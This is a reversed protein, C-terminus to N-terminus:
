GGQEYTLFWEPRSMDPRVFTPGGDLHTFIRLAITSTEPLVRRLAQHAEYAEALSQCAFDLGQPWAKWAKVGVARLEQHLEEHHAFWNQLPTPPRM